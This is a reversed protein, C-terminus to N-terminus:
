DVDTGGRPDHASDSEHGTLGAELAETADQPDGAFTVKGHDLVVVSDSFDLIRDVQQEIILMTVGQAKLLSLSAYVEDLAQPDLGLSPEDMILIEPPAVIAPALSLLQQQGGSLSGARSRRREDLLPYAALIQRLLDARAARPQVVLALNLNEEVSLTSFVGRGEPIHLVGMRRRRWMSWHKAEVGGITLSGATLPVLGSIVRAVTSKGAGNPGLLATTRGRELVLDVGFLARFPGYSADGQQLALASSM